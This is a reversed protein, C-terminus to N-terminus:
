MIPSYPTAPISEEKKKKSSSVIDWRYIINYLWSSELTENNMFIEMHKPIYANQYQSVKERNAYLPLTLLGM